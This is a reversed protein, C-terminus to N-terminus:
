PQQIGDNQYLRAELRLIAAIHEPELEDNESHAKKAEKRLKWVMKHLPGQEGALAVAERKTAHGELLRDNIDPLVIAM